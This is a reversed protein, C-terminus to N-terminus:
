REKSLDVLTGDAQVGNLTLLVRSARAAVLDIFTGALGSRRVTRANRSGYAVLACGHKGSLGAPDGSPHYFVVRGKLFLVSDATRWVHREFWQRHTRSFVLAIGNGHGAMKEMWVHIRTNYPPNMWVRGSWPLRLGDDIKTFHKKATRWPQCEAACPDLDFPGLAKLIWRPTIWTERIDKRM